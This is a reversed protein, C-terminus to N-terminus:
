PGQLLSVHSKPLLVLVLHTVVVTAAPDLCPLAALLASCAELSCSDCHLSAKPFSGALLNLCLFNDKRGRLGWSSHSGGPIM